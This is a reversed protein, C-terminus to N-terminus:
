PRNKRLGLLIALLLLGFGLAGLPLDHRDNARERLTHVFRDWGAQLKQRSERSFM